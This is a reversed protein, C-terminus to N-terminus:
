SVAASFPNTPDTEGQLVGRVAYFGAAYDEFELWDGAKGAGISATLTATDSTSATPFFDATAATTDGIDNIVVGGRFVDTANAVQIVVTNSTITTGILIRYTRGAGTSAPLTLTLGAAANVVLTRGAHDARNLTATATFSKVGNQQFGPALIPSNFRRVGRQAM